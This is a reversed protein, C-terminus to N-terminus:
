RPRAPPALGILDDPRVPVRNLGRGTADRLAAVVAATSVVASLEGVGKAGFPVGPEPEEILTSSFTPVDLITPILYDTFSPNLIRGGEIQIEEMLALGLGQATGGEIQGHVAQPHIAKGVDQATAVHVVRVLGLDEDVEVVVRQAVFAFLVHVDGQGREDMPTTKRHHYVRTQAIATDLFEVVLALRRGDHVVSEDEISLRGHLAMGRTRAWRRVREFLQERVARCALQAAGGAMMTQRSASTSGASGVMTDAPHLVVHDIGLEQRAIQVIITHVGQGVEAAASHVEAIPGSPTAFLKVRCEASDDFGASYGINKYGVAFGVGRRLGEGRSVNGTGGPYTLSDREDSAPPMPLEVCRRIVERVPAAGHIVQGTPLVAGTRLANRLRLEVRDLGLAGALQDMQAEYAVCAQVAGFGRMAGCPPNNTYVATGELLANPVAYPGAAFTTANTIVAPSSSAYAGGDIILRARVAVLQGDRTAGTRMWVRAPHRHVHGFFSEERSYVMKVPKGTRLALMAAHIQMSVDERGGFAGGVGALHLRVKDKPLGLCPAIQDQDVHLWQTAAYIDVGGDEAPVAMGSEPGLMAQDQMGTEYYGEVWVDADADPNGHVIRIAKVVNGREHLVPADDRLAAEMDSVTPLVEYVVTIREAARRAVELDTAALVAVPEGQYRVRDSALVPQDLIELGYLPKGPVDGALLVAQVGPSAVAQSIDIRAIRAHPHPSRVTYGWLLDEAWLDSGYLFQGKVKPVGDVRRVSEGVGGSTRERIRTSM